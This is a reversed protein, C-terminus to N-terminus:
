GRFTSKDATMLTRHFDVLNSEFNANEAIRVWHSLKAVTGDRANISGLKMLTQHLHMCDNVSNV